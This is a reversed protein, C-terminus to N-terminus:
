DLRSPAPVMVTVAVAVPWASAVPLCSSSSAGSVSALLSSQNCCCCRASPLCAATATATVTITAAGLLGSKCTISRVHEILKSADTYLPEDLAAVLVKQVPEVMHQEVFMCVGLPDVLMPILKQSNTGMNHASVSELQVWQMDTPAGM